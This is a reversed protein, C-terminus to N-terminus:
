AGLSTDEDNRGEQSPDVPVQSPNQTKTDEDNGGEQSPNTRLDDGADFPSLDSVNFTASVTYEGPLDLRYAKDNIRELVQFPGDGRPLLKSRRQAPFREKRMHLWVWDGPDFVQKHRGKNADLQNTNLLAEKVESNKAYFNNQKRELKGENISSKEKKERESSEVRKERQREKKESENMKESEKQESMKKKDSLKQLRVQDEYVQIPTLPVLTIRKKNLVFYYRNTYGDHTVRRDFQWPRGLLIHSAHMPVVDCLVEDKYKGISFSVLVQKTVKIEESDNLWQLKYPKPHKLTALNLKEVLSTSALNTCSGGDIIMSCVKDNVHCRTHFVNDRQVEDDEKVQASLTRRADLIEGYRDERNGYRDERNGYRDGRGGMGRRFRGAGVNSMRDDGEMDNEDGYYDNVEERIPVRERRRAQPVPRPQEVRANEVQDLPEHLQELEGRMMRRMEGVLAEKWNKLDVPISSDETTGKDKNDSM